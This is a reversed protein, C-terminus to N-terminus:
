RCSSSPNGAAELDVDRVLWNGEYPALVFPILPTCGNRLLRVFVAEEGDALDLFASTPADDIEFSEHELYVSIVTLRQRVVDDDFRSAATGRSSGWMQGMTNLDNSTVAALFRAVSTEPAASPRVTSVATACAYTSLAALLLLSLRRFTM